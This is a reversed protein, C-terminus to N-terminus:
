LWIGKVVASHIMTARYCNHCNWDWVEVAEAEV